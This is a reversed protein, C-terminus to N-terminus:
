ASALAESAHRSVKEVEVIVNFGAILRPDLHGVDPCGAHGGQAISTKCDALRYLGFTAENAIMTDVNLVSVTRAPSSGIELHPLSGVSMAAAPNDDV